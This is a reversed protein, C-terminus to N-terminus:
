AQDVISGLFEQYQQAMMEQDFHSKVYGFGNEGLRRCVDSNDILYTIKGALADVDGPPVLYGNFGDIISEPLGGANSAIMPKKFLQFELSVVPFGENRSPIVGFLARQYIRPLNDHPVEGIRMVRNAVGLEKILERLEHEIPGSGIMVLYVDPYQGALKAFARIIIDPGKIPVAWALTLIYKEPLDYAVDSVNTAWQPDIGSYVVRHHDPLKKVVIAVTRMLMQSVASVGNANRAQSIISRRVAWNENALLNVDSGHFSVAYKIRGLWKLITFYFNNAEPYELVVVDIGKNKIFQNLLLATRVLWIVCGIAAKVPDEKSYFFRRYFAYVSIDDDNGVYTIKNYNGATLVIVSNGKRALAKYKREVALAVGGVVPKYWPVVVLINM